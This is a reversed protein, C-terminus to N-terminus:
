GRTEPGIEDAGPPPSSRLHAELDALGRPSGVEYFRQTVEFGALQGEISLDHFLDALDAPRGAAVRSEIVSRDLVSLGYDIHRARAAGPSRRRKDYSIIRGAEFLVNSEDWQGDNRLITMLAPLGARHFAEIVPPIAIPLYSDGYLVLFADDLAGADAAGRLAGATGRLPQGEDVYRVRMGWTRGDGVSEQVMHGLYGVCFVVDDVGQAALLALQHHVFPVGNVPLLAKPVQETQPWMRTGLGGALIACQM